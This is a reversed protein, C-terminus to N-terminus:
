NSVTQQLPKSAAFTRPKAKPLRRWAFFRRLSLAYGTWVLVVVSLCALLALLQGAVGFLEGTHLYRAYLRWQRGRPNSAFPEWHAISLDARNIALEGRQQPHGGSGEDISFSVAADKQNPLRMVLSSWAPDQLIAQHIIPDLSALDERKMPKGHKPEGEGRMAPPPSGAVKFLLANAWPYAMILGTIVIILLPLLTWIGAINHLNWELARGKLRPRFLLGAKIHQWGLKRPLWIFLGSLILFLFFATAADKITRLTEHRVGNLAVWRHLDRVNLFFARLHGAKDSILTGDCPNVLLLRDRGFLIEAPRHPDAFLSLSSPMRDQATAALSILSSPAICTTAPAPQAIRLDREAWKIIQPQFALISGTIGLFVVVLGVSIGTILHLWFVFRRFTM